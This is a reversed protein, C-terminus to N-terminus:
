FVTTAKLFLTNGQASRAGFAASGRQFALQLTGFPPRYRYVFVAQVERRDISANTQVFLRLFLDKTFFQNVRGVHIWTSEREPDPDLVLRELEYELSLQATPKASARASLLRFDSGFNHGWAYGVGASQFERTNYGLDVETRRNRFDAEFRQFDEVRTLAVSWRNRLQFDVSQVIEWSRLTDTALSWFINYNSHYVFRELLGARLWLTKDLASDFERRDDDRIFGIVDANDAFREGLETYRVHFHATPSDYSPRVFFAHTGTSFSGYSQIAQATMSLTPTFFLTADTGLSGSNEGAAGRNALMLAVNSRGAVDRQLRVVGFRAEPVTATSEADAYIMAITWPGQKGFLKAGGRIDAIRRTYFTRIRQRFLESGELFFPRKEPLSLEFRTLNIQERDAEITAFDPNITGSFAMQPTIAYRLDLGADWESRADQQLTSLGYGIAQYRKPQPELELGVLRGAQSARYPADLPGAWFSQELTRRRSRGFNVGWTQGIGPRYSISALPIAIEAAWGVNTYRAASRWPADWSGDITRGDDAIRGDSQTGLPNTLFYYGSRRDHHSDLVIAVADDSFLDADRRTLQATPPEADDVLFAVYLHSADYAVLVTTPQSAPEGRRPAYQLFAGVRAAGHWEVSDVVGDIQPPAAVRAATIVASDVPVSPVGQLLVSAAVLIMSM